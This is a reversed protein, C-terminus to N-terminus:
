YNNINCQCQANGDWINGCLVCKVLGFDVYIIDDIIFYGDINNTIDKVCKEVMIIVISMNDNLNKKYMDLQPYEPHSSISEWNYFNIDEPNDYTEILDMYLVWCPLYDIENINKISDYLKRM